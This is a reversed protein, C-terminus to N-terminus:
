HGHAGLGEGRAMSLHHPQHHAGQVLLGIFGLGRIRAVTKADAPDRAVVTLRLGGPIGTLLRRRMEGERIL